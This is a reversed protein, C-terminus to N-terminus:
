GLSRRLELHSLTHAAPECQLKKDGCYPYQKLSLSEGPIKEHAFYTNRLDCTHQTGITLSLFTLLSRLFGFFSTFGFFHYFRSFVP